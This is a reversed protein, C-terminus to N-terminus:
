TRQQKIHRALGRIKETDAAAAKELLTPVTSDPIVMYGVFVNGQVAMENWATGM